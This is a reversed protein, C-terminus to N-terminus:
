LPLYEGILADAIEQSVRQIEHGAYHDTGLVIEGNSHMEEAREIAEFVNEGLVSIYRFYREEVKLLYPRKTGENDPKLMSNKRETATSMAM